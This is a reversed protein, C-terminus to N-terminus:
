QATSSGIGSSTGLWLFAANSSADLNDYLGLTERLVGDSDTFTRRCYPELEQKFYKVITRRCMWAKPQWLVCVRPDYLYEEKAAVQGAGRMILTIRPQKVSADNVM